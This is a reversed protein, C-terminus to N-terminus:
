IQDRPTEPANIFLKAPWGVWTLDPRNPDRTKPSDTQFAFGESGFGNSAVEQQTPYQGRSRRHKTFLIPGVRASDFSARQQTSAEPHLTRPWCRQTLDPGKPYPPMPGHNWPHTMSGLPVYHVGTARLPEAPRIPTPAAGMVRALRWIVCALRWGCPHM